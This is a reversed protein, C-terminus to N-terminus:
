KEIQKNTKQLTKTTKSKDFNARQVLKNHFNIVEFTPNQNSIQVDM